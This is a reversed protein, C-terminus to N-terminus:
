EKSKLTKEQYLFIIITKVISIIPMALVMGIIGFFYGFLLLSILITVPHLKMSKSMIIPQLVYSEIIQIFIIIFLTAIGVKESSTFAVLIIPIAGIYPGIYPIINTIANFLGFFISGKLNIFEFLISSTLFVILAILLTGKVYLFVKSDIEKLLRIIKSKKNNPIINKISLVLKDFDLLIYFSIILGLLIVGLASVVNKLPKIISSAKEFTFDNIYDVVVDKIDITYSKSILDDIHLQNFINNLFVNTKDVISPLSIILDNLEHKFTPYIYSWIFYLILILVIYIISVSLKRNIKKSMKNIIPNLLYAIVIGLFLPSLLKLIKLIFMCIDWEKCILIFSYIALLIILFYFIKLIKMLFYIVSNINNINLKELIKKM